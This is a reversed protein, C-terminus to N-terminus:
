QVIGVTCNNQWNNLSLSLAREMNPWWVLGQSIFVFTDNPLHLFAPGIQILVSVFLHKLVKSQKPFDIERELQIFMLVMKRKKLFYHFPLSDLWVNTDVALLCIQAQISMSRM